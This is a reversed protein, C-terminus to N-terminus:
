IKDNESPFSHHDKKRNEYFHRHMEPSHQKLLVFLIKGIEILVASMKDHKPDNALKLQDKLVHKFDANFQLAHAYLGQDGYTAVM